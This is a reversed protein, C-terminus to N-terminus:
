WQSKMPIEGRIVARSYYCTTSLHHYIPTCGLAGFVRSERVRSVESVLRTGSSRLALGDRADDDRDDCMMLRNARGTVGGRHLPCPEESLVDIKNRKEWVAPDRSRLNFYYIPFTVDFLVRDLSSQALFTDKKKTLCCGIMRFTHLSIYLNCTICIYVFIYVCHLNILYSKHGCICM